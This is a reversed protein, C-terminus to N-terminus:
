NSIMSGVGEETFIELLLVHEHTGDLIHVAGVGNEISEIASMVKPIMGDQIIKDSILSKAEDIALRSILTSKDDKDRLVGPTDTLLILKEAKLAHAISAAVLDANINMTTGNEDPAVSSIIPVYKNETLLQLLEISVSEIEGTLGWDFNKDRLKRAKLLGGDKGSLGVAKTGAQSLLGVLQQQVKGNLTMEVVEMAQEDTVRLGNKFKSEISLKSLMQNIEPGGGHVVIPRIGVFHMLSIDEIVKKRLDDNVMSAGGYKIVFTKGAFQRIYPLAENLIEVRQQNTLM